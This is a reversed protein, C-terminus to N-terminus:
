QNVAAARAAAARDRAAKLERRGSQEALGLREGVQGGTVREDKALMADVIADREPGAPVVAPASPVARLRSAPQATTLAKATEASREGHAAELGRGSVARKEHASAAATETVAIAPAPQATSREDPASVEDHATPQAQLRGVDHASSQASGQADMHASVSGQRAEEHATSREASREDTLAPALAQANSHATSREGTLSAPTLAQTLAPVSVDIPRVEALVAAVSVAGNVYTESVARQRQPAVGLAVAKQTAYSRSAAYALRREAIWKAPGTSTTALEDLRAHDMRAAIAARMMAAEAKQELDDDILVSKVGKLTWHWAAAALIPAAAVFARVAIEDGTSTVHTYGITASVLSLVWTFVQAAKSPRNLLSLCFAALAFGVIGLELGGALIWHAGTDGLSSTELAALMNFFGIGNLILAGLSPAAIIGALHWGNAAAETPETVTTATATSGM